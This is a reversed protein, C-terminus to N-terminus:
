LFKIFIVVLLAFIAVGEALGVFVIAKGFAKPDESVAGIAAPAAAAVALGSGISALGIALAMAIGDWEKDSKKQEAAAPTVITIEDEQAPTTNEGEASSIMATAAFATMFLIAFSCIQMVVAKAPKLGKKVAYTCAVLSGVLLGIFSMFIVVASM